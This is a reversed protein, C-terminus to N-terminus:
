RTLPKRLEVVGEKTDNSSSLRSSNGSRLNVSASKRHKFFSFLDLIGILSSCVAGINKFTKHLIFYLFTARVVYTTKIKQQVKHICVVFRCTIFGEEKKNTFSTLKSM